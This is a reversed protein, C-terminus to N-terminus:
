RMRRLEEVTEDSFDVPWWECQATGQATCRRVKGRDVAGEARLDSLRRRVEHVELGTMHSYEGSTLGPHRKVHTEVIAAHSVRKGSTIMDLAAYRSSAPDATHVIPNTM